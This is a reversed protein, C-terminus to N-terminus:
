SEEQTAPQAYQINSQITHLREDDRKFRRELAEQRAGCRAELALSAKVAKADKEGLESSIKNTESTSGESLSSLDEVDVDSFGNQFKPLDKLIMWSEYPDWNTTADRTRFKYEMRDTKGDFIAYRNAM